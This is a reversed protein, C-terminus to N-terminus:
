HDEYKLEGADIPTILRNQKPPLPCTAFPTFACPPNYAKNFDLVVKGEKPMDAYLFRGAGYTTKGSTQDRFIFFLQDGELVPHLRYNHDKWRFTAYGPSPLNETQGLINPIAISRPKDYPTFKAVVRASDKVPYWKLGHFDRRMASHIDKLRVGYKPGRKIAFMTFDAFSLKDTAGDSDPKLAVTGIAPKGNLRVPLGPVGRFAIKGAHFLFVGLEAPARGAPLSVSADPESGCRNEGEHLWFLGAVTLWGDETKLGAERELRWKELSQKYPTGVPAALVALTILVGMALLRM